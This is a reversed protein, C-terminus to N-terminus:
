FKLGHWCFACAWWWSHSVSLFPRRLPFRIRTLMHGSRLPLFFILVFHGACVQTCAPTSPPCLRLLLFLLFIPLAYKHANQFQHSGLHLLFQLSGTLVYKYTNANPPGLRLSFSLIFLLSPWRMRTHMSVDPPVLTSFFFFLCLITLAHKQIHQCQPFWPLCFKHGEPLRLRSWRNKHLSPVCAEGGPHTVLVRRSQKVHIQERALQNNRTGTKVTNRTPTM